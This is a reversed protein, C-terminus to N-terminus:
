GDSEIRVQQHCADENRRSKRVLYHFGLSPKFLIGIELAILERRGHVLLGPVGADPRQRLKAINDFRHIVAHRPGGFQSLGVVVLRVVDHVSNLAKAILRHLRPRQLVGRLLLDFYFRRSRHLAAASYLAAARLLLSYDNLRSLLVRNVNRLVIRRRRVPRRDGRRGAVGCGDVGCGSRTIGTALHHCGPKQGEAGSHPEHGENVIAVVVPIAAPVSFSTSIVNVVVLVNVGIAAVVVRSTL